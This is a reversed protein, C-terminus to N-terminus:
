NVRLPYWADGVGTQKVPLGCHHEGRTVPGLLALSGSLPPEQPLAEPRVCRVTSCVNVLPPEQPLPRQDLVDCLAACMLLDGVIM